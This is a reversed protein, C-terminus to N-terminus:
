ELMCANCCTVAIDVASPRRTLQRLRDPWASGVAATPMAGDAYDPTPGSVSATPDLDWRRTLRAGVTTQIGDTSIHRRSLEGHTGGGALPM